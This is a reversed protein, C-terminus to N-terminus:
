SRVKKNKDVRKRGAAKKGTKARLPKKRTV